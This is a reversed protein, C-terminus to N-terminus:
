SSSGQLKTLIRQELSKIEEYLGDMQISSQSTNISGNSTTKLPQYERNNKYNEKPLVPVGNVPVSSQVSTKVPNNLSSPIEKIKMTQAERPDMANPTFSRSLDSLFISTRKQERDTLLKVEHTLKAIQNDKSEM